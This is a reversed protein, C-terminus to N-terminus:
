PVPPKNTSEENEIPWVLLPTIAPHRCATSNAILLSSIAVNVATERDLVSSAFGRIAPV